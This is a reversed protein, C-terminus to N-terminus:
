SLNICILSSSLIILPIGHVHNEGHGALSIRESYTTSHSIKRRIIKTCIMLIYKGKMGVGIIVVTVQDNFAASKIALLQSGSRFFELLPTFRKCLTQALPSNVRLGGWPLDSANHASSILLHEPM